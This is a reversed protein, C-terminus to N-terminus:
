TRLFLFGFFLIFYFIRVRVRSAATAMTTTLDVAAVGGGSRGGAAAVAALDARIQAPGTAGQRRGRARRRSCAPRWLGGLREGGRGLGDGRRLALM